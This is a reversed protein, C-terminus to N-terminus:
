FVLLGTLRDCARTYEGYDHIGSVLILLLTNEEKREKLERLVNMLPAKGEEEYSIHIWTLADNGIANHIGQQTNVIVEKFLKMKAMEINEKAESLDL